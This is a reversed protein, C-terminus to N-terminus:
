CGRLYDNMIAISNHSCWARANLEYKPPTAAGGLTRDFAPYQGSATLLNDSIYQALEVLLMAIQDDTKGAFNETKFFRPERGDDGYVVHGYGPTLGQQHYPNWVDAESLDELSENPGTRGMALIWRENGDECISPSMWLHSSGGQSNLSNVTDVIAAEWPGNGPMAILIAGRGETTGTDAMVRGSGDLPGVAVTEPYFIGNVPDYLNDGLHWAVPLKYGLGLEPQSM